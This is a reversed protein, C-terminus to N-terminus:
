ALLKFSIICHINNANKNNIMNQESCSCVLQIMFMETVNEDIQMNKM